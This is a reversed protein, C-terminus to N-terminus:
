VKILDGNKIGLEAARGAQMEIVYGVPQSADFSKPYTRPSVDKDIAIVERKSNLWVIDISFHMGKMWFSYDGPRGLDFLMAQDAGICAKGSLGQTLEKSTKAVQLHMQQGNINITEDSRYDSGCNTAALKFSLIFVLSVVVLIILGAFAPNKIPLRRARPM